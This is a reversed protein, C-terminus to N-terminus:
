QHNLLFSLLSVLTFMKLCLKGLFHKLKFRKTKIKLLDLSRLIRKM